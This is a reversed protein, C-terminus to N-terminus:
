EAEKKVKTLLYDMCNEVHNIGKAVAIAMEQCTAYGCARCDTTRYEHSPKYLQGFANEMEHRDVFVPMIKKPTYQRHFDELKLNKDFQSYDVKSESADKKVNYMAKSIAYDKDEALCAGAGTNCGGNCSLIDVVLPGDARENVYEHLFTTARPGEIKFIWENVHQELNAKLGGPNPYVAGLGHPPNDFEAPEYSRYDIGSLELSELLKKFTVNYKILGKTNPDSIEDGKAICPSLFVLTGSINEYKKMYIAACMVPSQIPALRKLNEPVYREIYNVIAPCPQAILGRADHKEIYRLYAWTSIDAGYSADYIIKVGLAKLCGLLKPWDPVNSRIAPAVILSVGDWASIDDHFLDTDDTYDRAEHTCTRLCEGCTICKADDVRVSKSGEAIHAVNAESCPCSLICLNCGVCNHNTFIKHSSM